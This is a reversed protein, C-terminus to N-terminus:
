RYYAKRGTTATVREYPAEGQQAFAPNVDPASTNGAGVAQQVIYTRGNYTVSKGKAYATLTAYATAATGDSGGKLTAYDQVPDPSWGVFGNTQAQAPTSALGTQQTPTLPM